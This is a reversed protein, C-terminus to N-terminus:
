FPDLAKLSFSRKSAGIAGIKWLVLAGFISGGPRSPRTTPGHQSFNLGSPGLPQMQTPTPKVLWRNAGPNDGPHKDHLNAFGPAVELFGNRFCFDLLLRALWSWAAYFV